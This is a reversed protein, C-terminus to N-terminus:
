IDVKKLTLTMENGVPEIMRIEWISGAYQVRCGYEIQPYKRTQMVVIQGIFQEYANESVSLLNQKKRYARCKFFAKYEKKVFGTDSIVEIPKEFVLSYKLQGARM